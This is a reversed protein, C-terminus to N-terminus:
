IPFCLCLGYDPIGAMHSIALRSTVPDYTAPLDPIYSRVSRDIDLKGADMLRGMALANIAKSTSGLRFSSELDVPRSTAIDALGTASAWVRTGDIMIAASLAPTQLTRRAAHLETDAQTGVKEWGPEVVGRKSATEAPLSQWGSSWTLVPEFMQFLAWGLVPIAVLLSLKAVQRRRSTPKKATDM